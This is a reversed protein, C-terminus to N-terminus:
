EPKGGVVNKEWLESMSYKGLWDKLEKSNLRKFVSERDTRDVVVIQDAEFEDILRTSQTAVIAQHELTVENLMGALQVIATPHLGLEPEDLVLVAPLWSEPMLLLTWLSLIRLMGDSAQDPGFTVDCGRETWRLLVRGLVPHLDFDAFFPLVLRISELIRAYYKPEEQHLRVLFPALNAADEKLFRNDGRIQKLKLRATDSTNHFQYVVCRRLAGLIFKATPDGSEAVGILKAELHGGGFSIWNAPSSYSADSFRYAEEAFILTDGAGHFLRFRYENIGRDSEIQLHADCQPTRAVGDHLIANAGGLKAVHSQLNGPPTLMWSIFRFFSVFNSKGAGNPGILVTLNQPAFDVLERISKFGRITLKTLRTPM